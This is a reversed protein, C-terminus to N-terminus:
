APTIGADPATGAHRRLLRLAMASTFSFNVAFTLTWGISAGFIGYIPVLWIFVAIGSFAGLLSGILALDARDLAVSLPHGWVLPASAVVGVFMLPLLNPLRAFAPGFIVGGFLLVFLYAAVAITLSVALLGITCKAVLSKVAHFDKLSALRNIEPMLALYFPDIAKWALMVINKGMKYLGVEAAPMLPSILTVDLDKSMLDSMSLGVNALLLRRDEKLRQLATASHWARAARSLDIAYRSVLAWQVIACLIGTFCLVLISTTVTLQSLRYLITLLLLRLAAEGTLCYAYIDSRGVVRMLGIALGFGLKSLYIGVAAIIILWASGPPLNSFDALIWALTALGVLPLLKGISEILFLDIVAHDHREMQQARSGLDWLRKAVVDQMRPEFLANAVYVLGMTISFVGFGDAGLGHAMVILVVASLAMQGFTGILQWGVNRRFVQRNDDPM